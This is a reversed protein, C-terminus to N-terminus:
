VTSPAQRGPLLSIYLIAFFMGIVLAFFGLVIAFSGAFALLILIILYPILYIMSRYSSVLIGVSSDVPNYIIYYHIIVSFILTVVSIILIPWIFGRLKELVAAPDNFQIGSFNFYSSLYQVGLSMVFSTIFLGAFKKSYLEWISSIVTDITHRRYFPHSTFQDMNQLDINM